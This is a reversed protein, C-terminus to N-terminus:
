QPERRDKDNEGNHLIRVCSEAGLIWAQFALQIDLYGHWPFSKQLQTMDHNCAFLFRHDSLCCLTPAQFPKERIILIIPISRLFRGCEALLLRLVSRQYSLRLTHLPYPWNSKPRTVNGSLDGSVPDRRLTSSM